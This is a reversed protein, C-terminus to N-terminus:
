KREVELQLANWQLMGGSMNIVHKFGMEMAIATAQGSRAGSRCVFVIEDDKKAEALYQMLEPGLTKLEAGQIHGLENNYEDPRRVDILRVKGLTKKVEDCNVVPIGDSKTPNLHKSDLNRGCAMNAPLAEHIKKPHALKLESMIQVFESETKGAGIRPNHNKEEWVSSHTNGKYDHGPYVLTEEPLSFLKNVISSYLRVSSGQQFDTRGTGRVLLADGSFVMGDIYFSLCSDTHGPTALVKLTHEGFQLTQGDKLPLDVCDVKADTSVGTKAGTRRRVEGAGTIHDAHIHTDLVYRLELGLETILKLDRDVTELVPDILVAEKTKADWLLYTFTSSESEFLQHLRLNSNMKKGKMRM